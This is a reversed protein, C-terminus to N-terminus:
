GKSSFSSAKENDELLKKIEVQLFSIEKEKSKNLEDLQEQYKANMEKIQLSSKEKTQQLENQLAQNTEELQTIHTSHTVIQSKLLQLENNLQENLKNLSEDIVPPAPVEEM